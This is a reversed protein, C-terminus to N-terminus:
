ISSTGKTREAHGLAGDAGGGAVARGGRGTSLSLDDAVHAGSCAAPHSVVAHGTAGHTGLGTVSRSRGGAHVSLDGAVHAGRSCAAPPAVVAHRCPGHTGSVSGDLLLVLRIYYRNEKYKGNPFLIMIMMDATDIIKRLKSDILLFFTHITM